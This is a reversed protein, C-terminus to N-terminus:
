YENFQRWLFENCFVAIGVPIPKEIAKQSVSVFATGHTEVFSPCVFVLFFAPSM